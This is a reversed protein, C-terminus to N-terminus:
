EREPDSAALHSAQSPSIDPVPLSKWLSSLPQSLTASPPPRTDGPPKSRLHSAATPVPPPTGNKPAARRFPASTPDNEIKSSHRSYKSHCQVPPTQAPHIYFPTDLGGCGEVCGGYSRLLVFKWFYRKFKEGVMDNEYSTRV